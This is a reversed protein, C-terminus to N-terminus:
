NRRISQRLSGKRIGILRLIQLAPTGHCEKKSGCSGGRQIPLDWITTRLELNSVAAPAFKMRDVALHLGQHARFILIVVFRVLSDWQSKLKMRTETASYSRELLSGSSHQQRTLWVQNEPDLPDEGLNIPKVEFLKM